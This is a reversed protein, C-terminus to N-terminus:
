EVYLALTGRRDRLVNDRGPQFSQGHWQWYVPHKGTYYTAWIATVGLYQHLYSPDTVAFISTFEVVERGATLILLNGCLPLLESRPMTPHQKSSQYMGSPTWHWAHVYIAIPYLSYISCTSYPLIISLPPSLTYSRVSKTLFSMSYYIVHPTQM